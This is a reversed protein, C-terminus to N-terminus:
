RSQDLALLASLHAVHTLALPANGLAVGDEPRMEEPLLGVDNAADQLADILAQGQDLRGALILAEALWFSCPIFAGEQGISGEQLYRYLFPGKGLVRQITAITSTM